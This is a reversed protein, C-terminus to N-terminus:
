GWPPLGADASSRTAIDLHITPWRPERDARYRPASSIEKMAAQRSLSYIYNGRAQRDRTGQNPTPLEARPPRSSGIRLDPEVRHFIPAQRSAQKSPRPSSNALHFRLRDEQM